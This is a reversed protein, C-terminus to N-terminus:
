PMTYSVVVGAMADGAAGAQVRVFYSYEATVDETLGSITIYQWGTGSSSGTSGIQSIGGTTLNLRYLKATCSTGGTDNVSAFVTTIREDVAMQVPFDVVDTGGAAGWVGLADYAPSGNEARGAAAAVTRTKTGHKFKGTGSVTVHQNAAATLGATATILGTVGLTSSLTAAGTVGLTSSLTTAGTVGLTGGVTANSTVGLTTSVTAAGTVTLAGTAVTSSFTAANAVTNSATLTGASSMQVLQTSGPVASPLTLTYDAAMAQATLRVFNGSGDNIVDDDLRIDAYADAGSGARAEFELDAGDWRLEVGSSGYAPSGTSTIAGTSSINLAGANTIRVQRNAGDNFYLDGDTGTTYVSRPYTTASLAAANLVCSSALLDKTRYNTGGVLFSLDASMSMDAPVVKRELETELTTLATTIQPAATAFPDGVAPLSLTIPQGAM